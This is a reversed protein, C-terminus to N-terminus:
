PQHKRATQITKSLSSVQEDSLDAYANRNEDPDKAHDYYETAVKEDTEVNIWETYRGEPVKISYGIIDGGRQRSRKYQSLAQTDGEANPDQLLPLLNDGECRDPAEIGAMACLTPYLDILEVMAETHRNGTMGPMRIILPVRADIEFNTHKCWMAHEGLKWGHDSWLVVVTNEALGEEDLAALLRGIQADVFSVCARYGHILELAKENSVPGQKPIDSYARLEGWTMLAIQPAGEPLFYNDPLTITDRDYLGWYTKPAIFPLHPKKYGVTMFFPRDKREKLKGIALDTMAGDHYNADPRDAAELSPGKVYQRLKKGKLHKESAEEEKRELEAVLDDLHYEPTPSVTKVDIWEDWEGWQEDHYVKGMGITHYGAAGLHQPITVVDPITKRFKTQLDHVGTSDPRMGTFLSIRSPLCVAQQCYARDFRVGQAALRDINPTRMHNAGYCNLEPRLDDVGIFLINPKAGATAHHSLICSLLILFIPICFNM